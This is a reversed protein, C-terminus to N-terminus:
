VHARGIEPNSKNQYSLSDPKYKKRISDISKKIKDSSLDSYSIVRIRSGVPCNFGHPVSGDNELILNVFPKPNPIHIHEVNFNDKDKIDWILFGKDDLDGFNNQCLSGAYRVRGEVDVFQNPRHIDGLMVYDFSEFSGVDIDGHDMVWDQDNSRFLM